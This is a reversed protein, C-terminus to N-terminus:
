AVTSQGGSGLADDRRRYDNCCGLQIDQGDGFIRTLVRGLLVRLSERRPGELPALAQVAQAKYEERLERARELVNNGHIIASVADFHEAMSAKRRWVADLLERGGGSTQEHAIALLVSPRLAMADSGDGGDFDALDDHIQYAIGLAQSFRNLIQSTRGNAGAYIAGLNLAVDFAPATKRRFIDIVEAVSLPGPRAMWALEAGQGACLQCHGASAAELMAAKAAPSAQCRSIMRYGLGLLLDGVNLAIPVGHQAHLTAVGYRFDDHDEIDDHVLSAKHFCEVAVAIRRFDEPLQTAPSEQLSQYICAALFPRWRKGSLGLWDIALRHAHGDADASALIPELAAPEFWSAVETQLSDLNM